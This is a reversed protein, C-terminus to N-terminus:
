TIKDSQAEGSQQHIHTTVALDLRSRATRIAGLYMAPTRSFLKSHEPQPIYPVASLEVHTYALTQSSSPRILQAHPNRIVLTTHQHLAFRFFFSFLRRVAHPYLFLLISIFPFYFPLLRSPSINRSSISRSFYIKVGPSVM